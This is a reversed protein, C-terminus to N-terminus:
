LYYQPTLIFVFVSSQSPVQRINISAIIVDVAQVVAGIVVNVVVDVGIDVDVDVCVDVGVVDVGVVVEDGAVVDVVMVVVVVTDPFVMPM